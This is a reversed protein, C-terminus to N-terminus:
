FYFFNNTIVYTIANYLPDNIQPFMFLNEYRETIYSILTYPTNNYFATLFISTVTYLYLIWKCIRFCMGGIEM